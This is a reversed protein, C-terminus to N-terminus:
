LTSIWVATQTHKCFEFTGQWYHKLLYIKWQGHGLLVEWHDFHMNRWRISKFNHNSVSNSYMLTKYYSKAIIIVARLIILPYVCPPHDSQNTKQTFKYNISFKGIEFTSLLYLLPFTFAYFLCQVSICIDPNPRNLYSPCMLGWGALRTVM